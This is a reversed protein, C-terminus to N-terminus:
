RECFLHFWKNLNGLWLPMLVDDDFIEQVSLRHSMSLSDFMVSHSATNWFFYKNISTQDHPWVSLSTLNIWQFSSIKPSSNRFGIIEWNIIAYIVTFMMFTPGNLRHSITLISIWILTWVKELPVDLKPIRSDQYVRPIENRFIGCQFKISGFSNELRLIKVLSLKQFSM